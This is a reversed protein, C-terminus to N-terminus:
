ISYRFRKDETYKNEPILKAICKRFGVMHNHL